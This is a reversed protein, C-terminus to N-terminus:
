KIGHGGDKRAQAKQQDVPSLATNEAQSAALKAQLAKEQRLKFVERWADNVDNHPAFASRKDYFRVPREDRSAKSCEKELLSTATEGARDNDLYGIVNKHSTIYPMASRAHETSNLVVVDTDGPITRNTWAMWSLFDMAGEFVVVNHSTAKPLVVAEDEGVKALCERGASDFATWMIELDGKIARKGKGKDRAPYRLNWGGGVNKNGLAFYSSDHMDGTKPDAFSVTYQVQHLYRDLLESPICRESIAYDRLSRSPVGHKVEDVKLDVCIGGRGSGQTLIKDEVHPIVSPNFSSLYDLAEVFSCGKLLRVLSIPDGGGKGSKRIDSGAMMDGHDFWRHNVDDIHFSPSDEKRFPSFFLGGPTHDTCYGLAALIDRMSTTRLVEIQSADYKRKNGNDM